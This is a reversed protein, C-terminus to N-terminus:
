RKSDCAIETAEDQAPSITRISTVRAPTYRPVFLRMCACSFAEEAIHEASGEVTRSLVGDPSVDRERQAASLWM